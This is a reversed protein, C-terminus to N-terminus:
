TGPKCPSISIKPGPPSSGPKKGTFLGPKIRGTQRGVDGVIDDGVFSGNDREFFMHLQATDAMFTDGGFYGSLIYRVKGSNVAAQIPALSIRNNLWLNTGNVHNTTTGMYFFSNGRQVPGVDYPSPFNCMGGCSSGYPLIQTFGENDHWYSSYAVEADGDPVLNTNFLASLTTDPAVVAGPSQSVPPAITAQVPALPMLFVMGIIFFKVFKFKFTKM